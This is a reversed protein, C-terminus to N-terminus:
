RKAGHLFRGPGISASGLTRGIAAASFWAMSRCLTEGHRGRVPIRPATARLIGSTALGTRASARSTRAWTGLPHMKLIAVHGKYALDIM